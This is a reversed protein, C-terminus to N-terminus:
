PLPLQGDLMAGAERVAQKVRSIATACDQGSYVYQLLGAASSAGKVTTIPCEDTTRVRRCQVSDPNLLFLPTYTLCAILPLPSAQNQYEASTSARGRLSGRETAAPTDATSPTPAPTPAPTGM